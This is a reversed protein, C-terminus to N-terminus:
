VGLIQEAVPFSVLASLVVLEGEVQPESVAIDIEPEGIQIVQVGSEPTDQPFGKNAELARAFADLWSDFLAQPDNVPATWLVGTNPTTWSTSPGSFYVRAQAIYDAHKQNPGYRRRKHRPLMVFAAPTLKKDIRKPMVPYVAKFMPTSDQNTLGALLQAVGVRVTTRSM